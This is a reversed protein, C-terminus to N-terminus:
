SATASLLRRFYETYQKLAEEATENYDQEVNLERSKLMNGYLISDSPVLNALETTLNSAARYTILTIKKQRMYALVIHYCTAPLIIYERNGSHDPNGRLFPNYKEKDWHAEM